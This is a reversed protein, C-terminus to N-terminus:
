LNPYTAYNLINNYNSSSRFILAYGNIGWSTGWSNKVKWYDVGNLTGYGVLLVSLNPGNSNPDKYVGSKYSSFTDPVSIAVAVPQKAVASMLSAVNNGVSSISKVQAASDIAISSKCSTASGVYPYDVDAALGGNTTVWSFATMTWGNACPNTVKSCSIMDQVSFTKLKAYKIAYAGLM